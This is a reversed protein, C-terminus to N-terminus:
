IPENTLVWLNKIQYQLQEFTWQKESNSRRNPDNVYFGNEDYARLLIYHGTTTFDGPRMSCVILGGQDLADRMIQEDLSLERGSLGLAEVGLTWLSWETGEATYFGNSECYEAMVRPNGSTDGTLYIYAMSLCAPGCGGLGINTDGLAEYGWRRDWQMLLPVEGAVYEESLDIDQGLWDARSQYGAVFDYTEPNRDLLELLEEPIDEGQLSNLEASGEGTGQLAPLSGDAPLRDMYIDCVCLLVILLVGLAFLRKALRCKRSRRRTKRVKDAGDAGHSYGTVDKVPYKRSVEIYQLEGYDSERKM